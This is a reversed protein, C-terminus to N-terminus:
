IMMSRDFMNFGCPASFRTRQFRSLDKSNGDASVNQQQQHGPARHSEIGRAVPAAFASM